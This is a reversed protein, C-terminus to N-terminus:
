GSEDYLNFTIQVYSFEEDTNNKVKGVIKSSYEGSIVEWDLLKLDEQEVESSQKTDEVADKSEASSSNKEDKGTSAIIIIIVVVALLWVWWKKLISKKVKTSEDSM